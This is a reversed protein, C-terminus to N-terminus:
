KGNFGVADLMSQSFFGIYSRGSPIDLETGDTKYFRLSGASDKAWSISIYKGNCVFYGKGRSGVSLKTEDDPLSQDDSGALLFVNKFAVAGDTMQDKHPENGFQYRYYMNESESYVLQIHQKESARIFVNTATKGALVYERDGSYINFIKSFAENSTANSGLSTVLSFLRAGEGIVSYKYGMENKRDYAEFFGFDLSSQEYTYLGSPASAILSSTADRSFVLADFCKALDLMVSNATGLPGMRSADEANKCVALLTTNGDPAVVECLIDANSIGDQPASLYSNDVVFAVARANKLDYKSPLGTLPNKYEYEIEPTPFTVVTDSPTDTVSPVTTGDPDRGTTQAPTTTEEVDGYLGKIYECSTTSALILAALLVCIIGKAKKLIM